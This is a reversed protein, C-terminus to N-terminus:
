IELGLCSLETAWLKYANRNSVTIVNGCIFADGLYAGGYASLDSHLTCLELDSKNLCGLDVICPLFYAGRSKNSSIRQM